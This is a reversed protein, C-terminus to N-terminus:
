NIDPSPLYFRGETADVKFALESPVLEMELMLNYANESIGHDDDLLAKCLEMKDKHEM